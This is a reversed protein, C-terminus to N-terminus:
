GSESRARHRQAMFALIGAAIAGLWILGSVMAGLGVAWGVVFVAGGILTALYLEM